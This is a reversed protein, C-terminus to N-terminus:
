FPVRQPQLPEGWFDHLRWRPEGGRRSVQWNLFMKSIEFTKLYFYIFLYFHYPLSLNVACVLDQLKYAYFTWQWISDIVQNKWCWFAESCTEQVEEEECVLREVSLYVCLTMLGSTIFFATHCHTDIRGPENQGQHPGPRYSPDDKTLHHESKAGCLGGLCFQHCCIM